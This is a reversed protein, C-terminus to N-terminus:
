ATEGYFETVEVEFFHEMQWRLASGAYLKQIRFFSFAVM